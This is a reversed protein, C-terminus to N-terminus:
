ASQPERQYVAANKKARAAKFWIMALMLGILFLPYFEYVIIDLFTGGVAEQVMLAAVGHPVIMTASVSCIDLVTALMSNDVHYRSNLEKAIPATIIIAMVNNVITASLLLALGGSVVQLSRAGRIGKMATRVLWDIGGYEKIIGVLGSILMAFVALWFMSEIGTSLASIWTFLDTLGLALGIVGCLAISIALVVIVNIGVLALVITALYPLTTILNYDGAEVGGGAASGLGLVAYAVITLIGAPLALSLNIMFKRRMDGGVGGVACLTTSAIMSLNDGFYAGTIVAAGAMGANLNAANVLAATVPVMTALTGMSTGICTSIIASIAFIGPVLFQVPILSVGLNVISQEGGIASAAEAFGGALLVMLGLQTVGPQGANKCYIDVKEGAKRKPDFCIVALIIAIIMAVYRSMKNFPDEVGMVTFAVGCGVYLVLFILLPILAAPGYDPKVRREEGKEPQTSM